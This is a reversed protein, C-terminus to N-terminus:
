VSRGKCVKHWLYILRVSTHLSWVNTFTEAVALGWHGRWLWLSWDLWDSAGFYFVFPLFMDLADLSIERKTKSKLKQIREKSCCWVIMPPIYFIKRNIESPCQQSRSVLCGNVSLLSHPVTRCDLKRLWRRAPCKACLENKNLDTEEKFCKAKPKLKSCIKM